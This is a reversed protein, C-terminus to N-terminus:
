LNFVFRDNAVTVNTQLFRALTEVWEVIGDSNLDNPDKGDAALEKAITINFDDIIFNLMQSPDFDEQQDKWMPQRWDIMTWETETEKRLLAPYLYGPYDHNTDNFLGIYYTKGNSFTGTFGSYKSDSPAM